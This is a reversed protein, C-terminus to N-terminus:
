RSGSRRKRTGYHFSVGNVSCGWEDEEKWLSSFGTESCGWEDFRSFFFFGRGKKEAMASARRKRGNDEIKAVGTGTSTSRGYNRVVSRGVRM